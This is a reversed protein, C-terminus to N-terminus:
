KLNERGNSLSLDQSPSDGSTRFETALVHEASAPSHGRRPAHCQAGTLQPATPSCTSMHLGEIILAGTKHDVQRKFRSLSVGTDLAAPEPKLPATTMLANLDQFATAGLTEPARLTKPISQPEAVHCTM